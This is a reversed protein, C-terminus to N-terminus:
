TCALFVLATCSQMKGLPPIYNELLHYTPFSSPVDDDEQSPGFGNKPSSHRRLLLSVRPLFFDGRRSVGTCDQQKM